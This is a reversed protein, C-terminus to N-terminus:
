FTLMERLNSVGLGDDPEWNRNVSMYSRPDLKVLGILTEAVIRAGVPGLGEGSEFKNQITERGLVEAETLIYFWLPTGTSIDIKKGAIANAKKNIRDIEASPRNMAEAINEGSPLSFTHGRLLNRTALSQEGDFIFPLKLLDTAMKTDMKKAKQVNKDGHRDHHKNKDFHKDDGKDVLISWDVVSKLNSLPEFGNGLLPGFLDLEPKGKQIRIKQPIMSHGFRYAAVSFEVPIFTDGYNAKYFTCGNGLIDNVVAGGCMKVLFDHIVVWQYHWTVLERSKEYLESGKYESSLEDVVKNHFRIMALQLQSIVRNEDNRPDGIIARGNVSRILDNKQFKTAEPYDAGTLLKIGGFDSGSLYLYPHAEPGQGYICDLDLSPTRANEIQSIDATASLSTMVDLTIDHDIFQGFFVDGVAVSHTHKTRKGEDMPGKQKGLKKLSGPHTNLPPLDFMRGYSEGHERQHSPSCFANIGTLTHTGHHKSM